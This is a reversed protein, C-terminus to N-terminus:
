PTREPPTAAAPPRRWPRHDAPLPERAPGLEASRQEAAHRLDPEASTWTRQAGAVLARLRMAQGAGRTARENAADATQWARLATRHADQAVQDAAQAARLAAAATERTDRTATTIHLAQLVQQHAEDTARLAVNLDRTSRALDMTLDALRRHAAAHRMRLEAQQFMRQAWRRAITAHDAGATRASLDNAATCSARPCPHSAPLANLGHLVAVVATAERQGTIQYVQTRVRRVATVSSGIATAIAANGLGQAILTFVRLQAANLVSLPREPLIPPILGARCGISVAHPLSQAGLTKRLATYHHLVRADTWDLHYAIHSYTLGAAAYLLIAHQDASLTVPNGCTPCPLGAVRDPETHEASLVPPDQNGTVKRGAPAHARRATPVSM